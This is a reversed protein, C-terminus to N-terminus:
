SNQELAASCLKAQPPFDFCQWSDPHLPSWHLHAWVQGLDSCNSQLPTSSVPESLFGTQLPGSPHAQPPSPHLHRLDSAQPPAFGTVTMEEFPVFVELDTQPRIVTVRFGSGQEQEPFPQAHGGTRGPSSGSQLSVLFFHESVPHPPSAQEQRSTQELTSPNSQAPFGLLQLSTPHLPSLHPQLGVQSFDM